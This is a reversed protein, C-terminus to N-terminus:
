SQEDRAPSSSWSAIRVFPITKIKILQHWISTNFICNIHSQYPILEGPEQQGFRPRNFSSALFPRCAGPCPIRRPTRSGEAMSRVAFDNLISASGRACANNGRSGADCSAEVPPNQRQESFAPKGTRTKNPPPPAGSSGPTIEGSSGSEVTTTSTPATRLRDPHVPAQVQDARGSDRRVSCSPRPTPPLAPARCTFRDADVQHSPPVSVRAAM